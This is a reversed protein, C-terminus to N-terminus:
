VKFRTSIILRKSGSGGHIAYVDDLLFLNGKARSFEYDQGARICLNQNVAPPGGFGLYIAADSVNQYLAFYTSAFSDVITASTTVDVYTHAFEDSDVGYVDDFTENMAAIDTTLRRLKASISGTAGAGVVADSIDGLAKHLAWLRPLVGGSAGTTLATDNLLGFKELLNYLDAHIGYMRGLLAGAEDAPLPDDNLLGIKQLLRVMDLGMGSDPTVHVSADAVPIGNQNRRNVGAQAVFENTGGNDVFPGVFNKNEVGATPLEETYDPM